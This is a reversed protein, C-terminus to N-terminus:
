AGPRPLIDTDAVRLLPAPQPALLCVRRRLRAHNGAVLTAIPLPHARPRLSKSPLTTITPRAIPGHHHARVRTAASLLDSLSSPSPAPQRLGLPSAPPPHPHPTSMPLLLWPRSKRRLLCLLALEHFHPRCFPATPRSCALLGPLADGRSLSGATAPGTRLAERRRRGVAPRGSDFLDREPWCTMVLVVRVTVRYKRIMGKERHRRGYADHMTMEGHFAGKM